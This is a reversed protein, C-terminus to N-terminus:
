SARLFTEMSAGLGASHGALRESIERVTEAFRGTSGAATSVGSINVTMEQTSAAQQEVAGAIALTLRSLEEVAGTIMGIASVAEGTASQIAHIQQTIEDTARATQGALEKVEAAVVAFGRGAEGARAAEITANLALLNTQDAISKIMAVVSDVKGTKEALARVTMDTAGAQDAIQNARESVRGVQGSIEKVTSSMEESGAAVNAALSSAEDASHGLGEASRRMEEIAQGLADVVRTVEGAMALQASIVSWTLMPGLYNGEPDKIASVQLDLTEPGVKIRTRHPLRSADALMTRQHHPNKHFVDFSRGIMESAKIPLYQEITGLTKTSTRNLYNIKFNDKPDATMVAVPMDDIMTLLRSVENKKATINAAFKVVKVPKGAQDLGPNYTAELWVRRKDKDLRMFEGSAFEGARLKAWFQEYEPSRAADEEIFIRHHRGQLEALEYGVVSLFNANATLITGDMGFEIIALSRDLAEITSQSENYKSRRFM